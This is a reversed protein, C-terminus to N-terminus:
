NDFLAAPWQQNLLISWYIILNVAIAGAKNFFMAFGNPFMVLCVTSFIATVLAMSSWSSEPLLIGKFSMATLIGIVGTLLFLTFCIRSNTKGGLSKLLWSSSANTNNIKVGAAAVVGQFHGIGHVLLVIFAILQVTKTTM